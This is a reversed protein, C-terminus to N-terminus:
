GRPALTWRYRKGDLCRLRLCMAEPYDTTTYGDRLVHDATVCRGGAGYYSGRATDAVLASDECHGNTYPVVVPCYDMLPESGAVNPLAPFYRYYSPYNYSASRIACAGMSRSDFTCAATPNSMANTDNCFLNGFNSIGNDLCRQELFTCGMKQGWGDDEAALYEVTYWGSDELAALTLSSYRNRGTTGSMLDDYLVRREWHSSITGSGGENELEVATLTSCGFFTKAARLVAPSSLGTATPRGRSQVNGNFTGNPYSSRFAASNFGLIHTLEHAMIRVLQDRQFASSDSEQLYSPNINLVGATPRGYQDTECATAWAVTGSATKAASVFVVLDADAVGDTKWSDPIGFLRCSGEGKVQLAGAVPTRVGIRSTHMRMAAPVMEDMLLTRKETTLIESSTSCSVRNGRFDPRVDGIQTCYSSSNWLDLHSVKVRLPNAVSSVAGLRVEGDVRRSWRDHQQDRVKDVAGEEQPTERATSAQEEKENGGDDPAYQQPVVAMGDKWDSLLEEHICRHGQRTASSHSAAPLLDCTARTTLLLLLVVVPFM